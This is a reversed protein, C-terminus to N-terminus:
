KELIINVNGKIRKVNALDIKGDRIKDIIDLANDFENFKVDTINGKHRYKLYDSNVKKDLDTIKKLREDVLENFIKKKNQSLHIIKPMM